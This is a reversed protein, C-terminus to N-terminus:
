NGYARPKSFETVERWSLRSRGLEKSRPRPLGASHAPSSGRSPSNKLKLPGKKPAKPTSHSSSSSERSRNGTSEVGGVLREVSSSLNLSDPSGSNSSQM